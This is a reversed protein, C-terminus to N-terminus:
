VQRLCKSNSSRVIVLKQTKILRVLVNFTGQEWFVRMGNVLVANVAAERGKEKKIDTTAKRHRWLRHYGELSCFM